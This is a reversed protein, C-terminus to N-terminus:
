SQLNKLLTQFAIQNEPSLSEYQKYLEMAKEIIEPDLADSTESTDTPSVDYGMLWPASVGLVKAMKGSSINSPAHTGNLYQSISSKNVGSLNSLDQPRMNKNNLAERLRLATKEYKM